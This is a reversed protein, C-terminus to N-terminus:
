EYDWGELVEILRDYVNVVYGEDDVWFDGREGHIERYGSDLAWEKVSGYGQSRLWEHVTTIM